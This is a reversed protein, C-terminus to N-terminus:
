ITLNQSSSEERHPVQAACRLTVRNLESFTLIAGSTQYRQAKTSIIDRRSIM